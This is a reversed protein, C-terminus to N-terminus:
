AIDQDEHVYGIVDAAFLARELVRRFQAADKGDYLAALREALDEPDKAGQIAARLATDPIPQTAKNLAEDSLDEIAEQGPTFSDTGRSDAFLGDMIASLRAKRDGAGPPPTVPIEIDGAEFDYARMLYDETLKVIGSSVLKADREAREMQLGTGDDLIFTPIQDEPWQAGGLEANVAVVADVLHQVTRTVMVLDARKRDARVGDHVKAAAYSGTKGVDTTLTQGLILKQIRKTVALEFKEFTSGDGQSPIAEVNDKEDVALVASQLAKTMAKALETTDGATKGVLLPAGFRELFQPWFRWGAQRLVFAGYLRSLLAQGYPQRYNPRRRTLMFKLRTDVDVHHGTDQPYYRLAGNTMPTFWEFPRQEIRDIGIWGNPRRAYIVELVSYGYPTAQWAGEILGEMHPELEGWLWDILDGEGPELRWPTSHVAALRTELATAIEDDFEMRRLDARSLGANRLVEDPDPTAMMAEVIEEIATDDFMQATNPKKGQEPPPAKFWTSPRLLKM